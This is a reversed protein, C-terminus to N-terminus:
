APRRPKSRVQAATATIPIRLLTADHTNTEWAAGNHVEIGNVGFPSCSGRLGAPAPSGAPRARQPGRPWGTM